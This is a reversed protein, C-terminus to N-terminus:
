AAAMARDPNESLLLDLTDLEAEGATARVAFLRVKEQRRERREAADAERAWAVAANTAVIRVNELSADAARRRHLNEQARCLTSSPVM